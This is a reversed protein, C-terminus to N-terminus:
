KKRESFTECLSFYEITATPPPLSIFNTPIPSEYSLDFNLSSQPANSKYRLGFTQVSYNGLEDCYGFVGPILLAADNVPLEALDKQSITGLRSVLTSDGAIITSGGQEGVSGTKRDRTRIPFGKYPHVLNIGTAKNKGGGALLPEMTGWAFKAPLRGSNRFYIVIEANQKSDKPVVFDAVVGDKRGITVYAGESVKLTDRATDAASKAAEAAKKTQCGQYWNVILLGLAIMVAAKEWFPTDRKGNDSNPANAISNIILSPSGSEDRQTEPAPTDQPHVTKSGNNTPTRLKSFLSVVATWSSTLIERLRRLWSSIRASLSPKTEPEL